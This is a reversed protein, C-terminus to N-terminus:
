TVKTFDFSETIKSTIQKLRIQHLQSSTQYMVTMLVGGLRGSIMGLANDSVDIVEDNGALSHNILM